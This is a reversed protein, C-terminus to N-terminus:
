SSDSKCSEIVEPSEIGLLYCGKYKGEEIKTKHRVHGAVKILTWTAYFSINKIKDGNRLKELLDFDEKTVILGLGHRSCDLVNLNYIKGRKTRGM